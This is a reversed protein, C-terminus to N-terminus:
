WTPSMGAERTAVNASEKRSYQSSARTARRLRGGRGVHLEDVDDGM